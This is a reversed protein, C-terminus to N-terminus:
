VTNANCATFSGFPPNVINIFKAPAADTTPAKDARLLLFNTAAHPHPLPRTTTCVRSSSSAPSISLFFFVTFRRLSLFPMFLLPTFALRLFAALLLTACLCIVTNM